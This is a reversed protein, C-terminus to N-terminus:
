HIIRQFEYVYQNLKKELEFYDDVKLVKIAETNIGYHEELFIKLKLVQRPTAILYYNEKSVLEKLPHEIRERKLVLSNHPSNIMWGTVIFKFYNNKRLFTSKPLIFQFPMSPSWCLYVGGRERLEEMLGTLSEVNRNNDLSQGPLDKVIDAISFVLVCSVVVFLSAVKRSITVKFTSARLFSLSVACSFFITPVALRPPFRAFMGLSMCVLCIWGNLFFILKKNISFLCLLVIFCLWFVIFHRIKLLSRSFIKLSKSISRGGRTPLNKNLFRLKEVSYVKKDTFMWKKFIWFDNKSWGVRSMIKQTESTWTLQPTGHLKGREINFERYNFEKPIPAGSMTHSAKTAALMILVLILSGKSVKPGDPFFQRWVILPLVLVVSFYLCQERVLGGLLLFVMSIIKSMKYRPSFYLVWGAALLTLSASTFSINMLVAWFVGIICLSFLLLKAGRRRFDMLCIAIVTSSVIHCFYMFAGYWPVGASFSYLYKLVYGVANSMFVVNESPEGTYLGSSIMMMVVDDNVAFKGTLFILPLSIFLFSIAVLFGCTLVQSARRVNKNLFM